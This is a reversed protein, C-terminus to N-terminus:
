STEVIKYGILDSIGVRSGVADIEKRDCFHVGTMQVRIGPLSPAKDRMAEIIRTMAYEPGCCTKDDIKGCLRCKYLFRAEKM